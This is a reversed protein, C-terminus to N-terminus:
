KARSRPSTAGGTSRGSCRCWRWASRRCRFAGRRRPRPSIAAPRPSALTFALLVIIVLGGYKAVTTVNQVLSGWRLGVVNITAMLILAGAALYHAYADYPALAPDFGLARLAYQRLHALHRGAGGRPHAHVRGV